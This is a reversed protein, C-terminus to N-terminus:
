SMSLLDPMGKPQGWLYGQGWDVGIARLRDLMSRGEVGEAISFMGLEQAMAQLRRLVSEARKGSTAAQVLTKDFKLYRIPLELLYPIASHNSGFDDLALEFGLDLLPSISSLLRQPDACLNRETIELVWPTEARSAGPWSERWAQHLNALHETYMRQALFASSCNLFLKGHMAAFPGPRAAASMVQATIDADIRPELGISAATDIFEEAQVTKGQPTLMRALAEHGVVQLDELRVISQYAVRLRREQLAWRIQARPFAERAHGNAHDQQWLSLSRNAARFLPPVLEPAGM